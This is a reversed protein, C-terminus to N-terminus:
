PLLKAIDSALPDAGAGYRTYLRIRGETDYIYSGASHDMTYSDKNKGPVKKYYVKYAQAVKALQEPTTRLALMGPDFSAVYPKLIEPTDREPDVTIFIGQVLDGRTGLLKKVQVLESMTTPCVDPCQTYGFFVVVVKGRFNAIAQPKGFQDRMEGQAAFDEAYNAGTIDISHFQQAGMDCSALCALVLGMLIRALRPGLYWSLVYSTRSQTTQLPTM